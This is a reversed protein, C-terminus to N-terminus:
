DDYLLACYVSENPMTFTYTGRSVTTFPYTTGSDEGTISDLIYDGYTYFTVTAGNVISNDTFSWRSRLYSGGISAEANGYTPDTFIYLKSSGGGGSGEYTGTVGFISVDKKINGAALNADGLITQTGTLWRGSAITQNSTTPTYTQASKTLLQTTKSGSIHVSGITGQEIYGPSVIPRTSWYVDVTSTVKGTSNEITAAQPAVAVANPMTASGSPMANIQVSSLGDYGSDPTITQSSTTPAINTKQQLSPTPKTYEITINDAMMKGNTELVETGSTDMTTITNGNYSIVVPVAPTTEIANTELWSILATNTADTGGTITFSVNAKWTWTDPLTKTDHGTAMQYSSSVGSVYFAVLNQEPGGNYGVDASNFSSAYNGLTNSIPESTTINVTFLRGYISQGGTPYSILTDKLEWTTGTLDTIAM